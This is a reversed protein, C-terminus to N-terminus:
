FRGMVRTYYTTQMLGTRDCSFWIHYHFCNKKFKVQLESLASDIDDIEDTSSNGQPNQSAVKVQFQLAAFTISEEETCEIEETLIQIKAHEYM